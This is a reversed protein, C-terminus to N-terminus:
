RDEALAHEREHDAPVAGQEEATEGGRGAIGADAEQEDVAVLVGIAGLLRQGALGGVRLEREREAQGVGRPGGLESRDERQQRRVIHSQEASAVRFAQRRLSDGRQGIARRDDVVFADARVGDPAGRGRRRAQFVGPPEV